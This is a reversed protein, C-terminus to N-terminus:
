FDINLGDTGAIIAAAVGIVIGGFILGKKVKKSRTWDGITVGFSYNSIRGSEQRYNNLNPDYRMYFGSGSKSLLSLKFDWGFGGNYAKNLSPSFHLDVSSFSRKIRGQIGYHAVIGFNTNLAIGMATKPTMKHLYGVTLALNLNEEDQAKSENPAYSFGLSLENIITRKSDTIEQANLGQFLVLFLFSICIRLGM